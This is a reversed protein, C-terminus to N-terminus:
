LILVSLFTLIIIFPHYKSQKFDHGGLSEISGNNIVGNKTVIRLNNIIM